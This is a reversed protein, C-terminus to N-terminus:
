WRKVQSTTDNKQRVSIQVIEVKGGFNVTKM